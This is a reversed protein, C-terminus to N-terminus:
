MGAPYWDGTLSSHEWPVQKGATADSVRKRVAKLVDEIRRGPVPLSALLAATYLGNTGPVGDSAVRGPATAFCILTGETGEPDPPAIAGLGAGSAGRMRTGYTNYRCADLICVRFRQHSFMRLVREVDVAEDPLEEPQADGFDVPLLWNRGHHELGHGSFYFLVADTDTLGKAFDRLVKKMGKADLDLHASVEHGLGRLVAALDRVDKAPNNLGDAGGYSQNGILVAKLTHVGTAGPGVMLAAFAPPPAVATAPEEAAWALLAAFLEAKRGQTPLGRAALLHQVDDVRLARGLDEDQYRVLERAVRMGSWGARVDEDGLRDVAIEVLLDRSFAEALVEALRVQAPDEEEDDDPEDAAEESRDSPAAGCAVALREVLEAKLGSAPLDLAVLMARLRDRAIADFLDGPELESLAQALDDKTARSWTGPLEFLAVLGQLEGKSLQGLAQAVKHQRIM